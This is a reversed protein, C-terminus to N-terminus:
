LGKAEALAKLFRLLAADWGDSDQRRHADELDEPLSPDLNYQECLARSYRVIRDEAAERSDVWRGSM